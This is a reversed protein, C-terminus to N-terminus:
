VALTNKDTQIDRTRIIQLNEAEHEACLGGSCKCEWCCLHTLIWDVLSSLRNQLKLQTHNTHNKIEGGRNQTNVLGNPGGAARTKEEDSVNGSEARKILFVGCM